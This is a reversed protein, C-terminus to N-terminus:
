QGTGRNQPRGQTLKYHSLTSSHSGLPSVCCGHGTCHNGHRCIHEPHQATPACSTSILCCYPLIGQEDSNLRVKFFLYFNSELYISHRFVHPSSFSVM